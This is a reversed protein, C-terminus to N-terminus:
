AVPVRPEMSQFSGALESVTMSPAGTQPKWTGLVGLAKHDLFILAEIIFGMILLTQAKYM